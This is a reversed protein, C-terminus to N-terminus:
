YDDGINGAQAEEQHFGAPRLGKVAEIEELKRVEDFPVDDDKRETNRTRSAHGTNRVWDNAM